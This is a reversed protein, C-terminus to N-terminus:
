VAVIQLPTNKRNVKITYEGVLAQMPPHEYAITEDDRVVAVVACVGEHTEPNGNYIYLVVSKTDDIPEEYSALVTKGSKVFSDPVNMLKEYRKVHAKPISLTLTRAPESEPPITEEEAGAKKRGPKILECVVRDVTHLVGGEDVFVITEDSDSKVVGTVWHKGLRCKIKKGVWDAKTAKRGRRTAPTAPEPTAAPSATEKVAPASAAPEEAPKTKGNLPLTQQGPLPARGAKSPPTAGAAQINEPTVVGLTFDAPKATDLLEFCHDVFSDLVLQSSEVSDIYACIITIRLEDDLKAKGTAEYVRMVRHFLTSPHSIRGQHLKTHFSVWGGPGLETTVRQDLYALAFGVLAGDNYPKGNARELKTFMKYSSAM